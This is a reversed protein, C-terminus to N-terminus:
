PGCPRAGMGFFAPAILARLEDSGNGAIVRSLDFGYTLAAQRRLRTSDPDPYLRLSAAAETRVARLVAPSPPYPNENTNLKIFGRDQPQEGPLYGKMRAINGRFPIKM